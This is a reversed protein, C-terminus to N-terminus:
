EKDDGRFLGGVLVWSSSFSLAWEGALDDCLLILTTFYEATSGVPVNREKTHMSEKMGKVWVKIEVM